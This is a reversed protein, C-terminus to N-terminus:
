LCFISIWLKAITDFTYALSAKIFYGFSITDICTFIIMLGALNLSSILLYSIFFGSREIDTQKQLLTKVTFIFHFSSALGILITFFNHLANGASPFAITACGYLFLILLVHLSVIYPSLVVILNPHSVNVSASDENIKLKSVKSGTLLGFFAHTLEHCYLYHTSFQKIFVAIIFLGTIFASIFYFFPKPLGMLFDDSHIYQILTRLIGVSWFYLFVSLLIFGTIKLFHGFKSKKDKKDIKKDKAM